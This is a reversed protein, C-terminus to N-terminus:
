AHILHAKPNVRQSPVEIWRRRLYLTQINKWRMLFMAPNYFNLSNWHFLAYDRKLSCYNLLPWEAWPTMGQKHEKHPTTTLRFSICFYEFYNHIRLTRNMPQFWKKANGTSLGCNNGVLTDWDSIMRSLKHQVLPYNPIENSFCSLHDMKRLGFVFITSNLARQMKATFKRYFEVEMLYYQDM